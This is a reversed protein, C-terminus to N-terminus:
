KSSFPKGKGTELYTKLSDLYLDWGKECDKYCFLNETLGEHIFLLDATGNKNDTITFRITTGVWEDTKETDKKPFYQEVCKWVVEREPLLKAIKMVAYTEKGFHFTAIGGIHPYLEVQTTWWNTLGKETTIAEYVKQPATEIVFQKSYSVAKNYWKKLFYAIIELFM